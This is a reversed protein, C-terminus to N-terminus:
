RQFNGKYVALYNSAMITATYADIYKRYLRDAYKGREGYVKQIASVLGETDDLEFFVTEEGPLLERFIAIDSCVVPRKQRAVEQLVLSFGESRSSLVFLDMEGIFSVIDEQFGIFSIREDVGHSEALRKLDAIQQGKGAISLKYGPLHVLARIVQDFGKRKTIDGSGILGINVADPDKHRATGGSSKGHLGPIGNHVYTLKKNIWFKRYYDVADRSLTVVVDHRTTALNWAKALLFAKVPNYAYKFDEKVYNHLTTITRAKRISGRHWFVYADPLVGHSHIVDYSDFDIEELFSIRRSKVPFDVRVIDKFYYLDIEHEEMLAECLYRVVNVPGSRDLYPVLYAIKM